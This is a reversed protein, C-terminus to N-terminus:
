ETASLLLVGAVADIQGSLKEELILEALLSRIEPVNVDMKMALFDLKVRNYPKCM